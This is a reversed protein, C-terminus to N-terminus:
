MTFDSKWQYKNILITDNASLKCFMKSIQYYKIKKAHSKISIEEQYNIILEEQKTIFNKKINIFSYQRLLMKSM